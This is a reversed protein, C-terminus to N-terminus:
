LLEAFDEKAADVAFDSLGVLDFIGQMKMRYHEGEYVELTPARASYPEEWLRSYAGVAEM